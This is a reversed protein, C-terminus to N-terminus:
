QLVLSGPSNPDKALVNKGAQTLDTPSAHVTAGFLNMFTKRYPKQNYSVKVMFVECELGFHKCAM